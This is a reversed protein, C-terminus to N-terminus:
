KGWKTDIKMCGRKSEDIFQMLSSFTDFKQFLRKLNAQDEDSFSPYSSTAFAHLISELQNIQEVTFGHRELGIKNIKKIMAPNGDVLIYPPIDRVVKAMAGIMAYKGVKTFQHTFASMGIHAFDDVQTHGSIRVHASLTTSNGIIADHGLYAGHGIHNSNGICTNINSEKSRAIVTHDNIMNNSGIILGSEISKDFGKLNPLAGISCFSGIYTGSGILTNSHIKTHSCVIVGDDISVNDGIISYEGISVNKGIMVNRGIFASEHIM